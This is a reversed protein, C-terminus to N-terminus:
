ASHSASLRAFLGVTGASAFGLSGLVIAADGLGGWGDEPRVGAFVLLVGAAAAGFLSLLTHTSAGAPASGVRRISLVLIVLAGWTLSVLLAAFVDAPRHWGAVVTSAGALTVLISGVLSIAFRTGHPAILLAALVISIVVTTHGSPLSPVSLYGFDEREVVVRKLLQTTVNAGAVIAAAGAAVAYRHRVLALAICGVLALATTGISIYGLWSLMERVTETDADITDMAAQDRRQGSETSQTYAILVVLSATSALLTLASWVINAARGPGPERPPTAPDQRYSPSTTSMGDLM